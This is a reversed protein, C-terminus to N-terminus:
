TLLIDMHFFTDQAKYWIIYLYWTLHIIFRFLSTPPFCQVARDVQLLCINRLSSVFLVFWLLFFYYVLKKLYWFVGNYSYFGVYSSFINEICTHLLPGINPNYLIRIFCYCFCFWSISFHAFYKFLCNVFIFICIILLWIFLYKPESDGLFYLNFWMGNM